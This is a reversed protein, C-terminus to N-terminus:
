KSGKRALFTTRDGDITSAPFPAPPLTLIFLWIYVSNIFHRNIIIVANLKNVTERQKRDCRVISLM